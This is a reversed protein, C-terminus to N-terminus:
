DARTVITGAAAQSVAFRFLWPGPQALPARKGILFDLDLREIRGEYEDIVQAPREFLWSVWAMAGQPLVHSSVPIMPVGERSSLTLAPISALRVDPRSQVRVLGTVRVLNEVLVFSCLTIDIDSHRDTANVAFAWPDVHDVPDPRDEPGNWPLASGERM